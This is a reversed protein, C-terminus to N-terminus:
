AGSISRSRAVAGASLDARHRALARLAGVGALVTRRDAGAADSRLSGRADARQPKMRISAVMAAQQAM